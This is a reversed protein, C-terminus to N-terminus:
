PTVKDPLEFEFPTVPLGNDFEEIFKQASDPLAMEWRDGIQIVIDLVAIERHAFVRKAALAIPCACVESPTGQDIDEQTVQIKMRGM